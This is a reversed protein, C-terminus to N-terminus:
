HPDQFTHHNTKFAHTVQLIEHCQHMTENEQINSLQISYFGGLKVINAIFNVQISKVVFTHKHFYHKHYFTKHFSLIISHHQTAQNSKFM